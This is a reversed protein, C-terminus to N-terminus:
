GGTIQQLFTTSTVDRLKKIANHKLNQLSTEHLLHVAQKLSESISTHQWSFIYYKRKSGIESERLRTFLELIRSSSSFRTFL